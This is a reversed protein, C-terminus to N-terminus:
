GGFAEVIARRQAEDPLPGDGARVNADLHAPDATAPLACTVAPHALIFKLLLEAWAACGLARAVAPLPQHRVQRLLEGEGFPRMVLVATGTAAAAPLLRQEVARDAVNYPLQVFDLEETRVLRELEDFAGHAYHTIGLYRIRGAAKWARLVPLHTQWDLLNHVQMLDLRQTGLRALSREMQDIGSQQGSTWVKTALFAAGAPAALAALLEGVTSEAHGYMPSSDIVRGGAALFRRLVERVPAREAAGGRLDFTQWTGLGIVPLEEGTRPIPRALM